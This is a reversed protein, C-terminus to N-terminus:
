VDFLDLVFNSFVWDLGFILATMVVLTSLVILSYNVTEAKTPWAVKRLEQRVERVFQRASTREEKTRTPPTATATRSRQAVPEGDAGLDGSRKLRRKQERNLAM